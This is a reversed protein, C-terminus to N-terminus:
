RAGTTSDPYLLITGTYNVEDAITINITVPVYHLNTITLPIVENNYADGEIVFTGDGLTLTDGAPASIRAHFSMGAPHDVLVVTGLIKANEIYDPTNIYPDCTTICLAIIITLVILSFKM